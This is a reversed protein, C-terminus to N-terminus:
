TRTPRVSVAIRNPRPARAITSLWHLLKPSSTSSSSASRFARQSHARVALDSSLPTCIGLCVDHHEHEHTSLLLVSAFLLFQILHFIRSSSHLVLIPNSQFCVSVDCLCGCSNPGIRNADHFTFAVHLCGNDTNDVTTSLVLALIQTRAVWLM